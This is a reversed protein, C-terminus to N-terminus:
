LLYNTLQNLQGGARVYVTALDSNPVCPHEAHAPANKQSRPWCPPPRRALPLAPRHHLGAGHAVVSDRLLVWVAGVLAQLVGDVGVHSCHAVAALPMRSLLVVALPISQLDTSRQRASCVLSLHASRKTVCLLM